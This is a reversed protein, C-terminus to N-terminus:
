LREEVPSQIHIEFTMANHPSIILAHIEVTNQKHTIDLIERTVLNYRLESVWRQLFFRLANNTDNNRTLLECRLYANPSDWQRIINSKEIDFANDQDFLAFQLDYDFGAITSEFYYSNPRTM